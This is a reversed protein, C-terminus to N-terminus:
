RCRPRSPSSLRWATEAPGFGVLAESSVWTQPVPTLRGSAASVLELQVAQAGDASDSSFSLEVALLSGDPSFAASTVSSAAPLEVSVQRGTALNLVQMRCRAACSPMWAVQTPSAAIVGQFTRSSRPAAPDWLEEGMTGSRQTVPALLLGRDTGQEVLYGAPLSVQSGSARGTISVERAVGAATRPDAGSPYSTLWLAGATGPAVANAAGVRTVSRGGDALFYVSRLPETCSGCIAQASPYAQLAWGGAVRTFQYGSRQPVLGGIPTMQGTAPWFWM